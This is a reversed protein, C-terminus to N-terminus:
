QTAERAAVRVDNSYRDDTIMAVAVGQIGDIGSMAVEVVAAPSWVAPDLAALGDAVAAVESDHSKALAVLSEVYGDIGDARRAEDLLAARLQVVDDQDLEALRGQAVRRETDSESILGLLLAGVTEPLDALTAVEAFSAALTLYNTLDVNSLRPEGAAWEKTDALAEDPPSDIAGTAWNEWAVVFDSRDSVPLRMLANLASTYRDELILLKCLLEPQLSIGRAEAISSRVAFSNLFRKVERPNASRATGLGRAIQSALRRLRDGEAGLDAGVLLPTTGKRRQDSCHAVAATLADGDLRGSALLLGIFAEAEHPALRPLYVPLQILKDIYRSALRGSVNSTPLHAAVADRVLEKDCALVFVMKEVALFLKIAELTQVVAHPLCRDLDDVLVVVRKLSPMDAVLKAFDEKFGSLTRPEEPMLSFADLLEKPNWAMTVAGKAVAMGVRSWSVRKALGVIRKRAEVVWTEDGALSDEIAALVDGIILEKIDTAEDYEWPSVEVVIFGPDESIRAQVLRLLTSKGSGWAGHLGISVPDLHDANLASVVPQVLDSFDLMDEVAPNDNLLMLEFAQSMAGGAQRPSQNPEALVQSCEIRLLTSRHIQSHMARTPELRADAELTSGDGHHM